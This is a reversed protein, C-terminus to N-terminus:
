CVSHFCSSSSSSSSCSSSYSAPFIFKGKEAGRRLVILALYMTQPGVITDKCPLTPQVTAASSSSSSLAPPSTSPVWTADAPQRGKGSSSGCVDTSVAILIAYGVVLGIAWQRGAKIASSAVLVFKRRSKRGDKEGWYM